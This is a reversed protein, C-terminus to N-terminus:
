FYDRKSCEAHKSKRLQYNQEHEAPTYKEFFEDNSYFVTYDQSFNLM